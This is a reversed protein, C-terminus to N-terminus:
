GPGQLIDGLSSWLAMETHLGGLLVIHKDEGHTAPWTWQICKTIAFLPPDCTTIPVQGPNLHETAKQQVHMGHKIMAPTAAKEYFLPLVSSIAPPEVVQPQKSAHYASLTIAEGKFVTQKDLYPLCYEIWGQEQTVADRLKGDIECTTRKPVAANTTKM